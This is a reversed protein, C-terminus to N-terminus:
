SLKRHRKELKAVFKAHEPSALGAQVTGLATRADGALLAVTDLWLGPFIRSKLVGKADAALLAYEGNRKLYYWILEGDRTNWVLYEPVKNSEYTDRKHVLDKQVSSYSVEVILEPVGELYKEGVRCGGGFSEEVYLLLDPELTSKRPLILTTPSQGRVGPTVAAYNGLIMTMDFLPGGHGSSSIPAMPIRNGHADTTWRQNIYVIGDILEARLDEEEAEYRRLFEKQTLVDGARLRPITKPVTQRAPSAANM